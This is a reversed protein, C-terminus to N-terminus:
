ILEFSGNVNRLKLLGKDYYYYTDKQLLIGKYEASIANLIKKFSEFSTVKVKLELNQAM